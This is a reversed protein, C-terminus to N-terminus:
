VSFGHTLLVNPTLLVFSLLVSSQWAPSVLKSILVPVIPPWDVVAFALVLHWFCGVSLVAVTMMVPCQFDGHGTDVGRCGGPM